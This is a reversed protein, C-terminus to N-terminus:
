LLRKKGLGYRHAIAEQFDVVTSFQNRLLNQQLKRLAFPDIRNSPEEGSEFARLQEELRFDVLFRYAELTQELIKELEPIHEAAYQLRDFTTTSDLYRLELALVRAANVVPLTGRERINISNRHDDSRETVFRRLFNLPPKEKLANAAMLKLFRRKQDLEQVNLADFLDARLEEVLQRQGYVARLDFFIPADALQDAKAELIWERYTKKWDRLSKRWRPERAVFETSAFGCAQMGDNVRAAILGFWKHARADQDKSDPNAYILMNHQQSNLAMERRGGSGTRVWAWALDVHQDGHKLRLDRDALELVRIVLRDYIVSLIRNIMEPQLGQRYLRWMQENADARISVLESVSPADQIRDITAVPDQGRFHAIDRDTLVGETKEVGGDQQTIILRNFRGNIMTMMAEFLSADTGITAVPSTMIATVPIEPSLGQAILRDCLDRTTVIGVNKGDDVVVVSGVRERRMIQAAQRATTRPGCTVVDRHVLQHLRRNFLLHGGTVDVEKDMRRVYRKIDSEFFAKVDENRDYLKHFRSAKLLACVTPEVAKAEYIAGSGKILGLSGFFDGEGCKDLLRQNELDMLRVTGSEVIYLGKNVTSGQEIVVEGTSFYEISIDTLLDAREDQSLRDFPPTHEIVSSIRDAITSSSM